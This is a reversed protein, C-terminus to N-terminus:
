IESLKVQKNSIALQYNVGVKLAVNKKGHSVPFDFCVPYSYESLIDNIATYVTKGFPRETDKMDTFGGIILGALDNLKGSRKLQHMMRDISYIYEGIDEIFLIKNKTIINSKTGIMNVLLTLNGGVLEGKGIGVKDFRHPKVAYTNKKGILTDQLSKIYINKYGSRFLM